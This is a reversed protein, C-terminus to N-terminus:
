FGIQLRPVGSARRGVFTPAHHGAQRACRPEAPGLQAPQELPLDYGELNESAGPVDSACVTVGRVFRCSYGHSEPTIAILRPIPLRCTATVGDPDGEAASLMGQRHLWYLVYHEGASGVLGTSSRKKKPKKELDKQAAM